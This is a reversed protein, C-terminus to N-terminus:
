ILVPTSRDDFAKRRSPVTRNACARLTLWTCDTAKCSFPVRVLSLAVEILDRTTGPIHSVIAVDKNTMANILTSKGVNPRGVISVRLGEKVTQFSKSSDIV